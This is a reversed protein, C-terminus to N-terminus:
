CRSFVDGRSYEPKQAWRAGVLRGPSQQPYRANAPVCIIVSSSGNVLPIYRTIRKRRSKVTASPRPRLTVDGYATARAPDPIRMHYIGASREGAIPDLSLVYKPYSDAVAELPAYERRRTEASAAITTAVQVYITDEEDEFGLLPVAVWDVVLGGLAGADDPSVGCSRWGVGDFVGM